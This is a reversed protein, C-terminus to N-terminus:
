SYKQLRSVIYELENEELGPHVPISLVEASARETEPFETIKQTCEIHPFHYLARPYYISTGIGDEALKEKLKDRSMSFEPTM